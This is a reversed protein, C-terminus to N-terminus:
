QFVENAQFEEKSMEFRVEGGKTMGADRWGSRRYFREARTGPETSLWVFEKGEDFYWKLMTKQLSRGIGRAEFNPEVFLAWINNDKLDAIAFGTIADGLVAVWGKGRITIFEACHADTVLSPDSLINERVSHRIRQIEPIDSLTAERILM